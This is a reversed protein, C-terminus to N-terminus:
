NFINIKRKKRMVIDKRNGNWKIKGQKEFIEKDYSKLLLMDEEIELDVKIQELDIMRTDFLFRFVEFNTKIDMSVIKLIGMKCAKTIVMKFTGKWFSMIESCDKVLMGKGFNLNQYYRLEYIIQIMEERITAREIKKRLIKLFCKQLHIVEKQIEEIEASNQVLELVKCLAQYYDDNGTISKISRKLDSFYNKKAESDTRWDYLFQENKIMMINQYILNAIEDREEKLNIDWSWGNFNQLIEINNQKYGVVLMKQLIDKLKFDKRVFFYKPEVDSIAELMAIETPYSLISREKTNTLVNVKNKVLLTAQTSEPEVIKVHDCYNKIVELLNRLFVDKSVCDVKVIAYDKYSIELKYIMSLLLSKAISSFTKKDLIEELLHNYDKLKSFLKM